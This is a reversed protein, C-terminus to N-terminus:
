ADPPPTTPDGPPGAVEGMNLSGSVDGHIVVARGGKANIQALIGQTLGPRSREAENLVLTATDILEQDHAAGVEDLVSRIAAEFLEPDGIYAELTRELKANKTGFRFIILSKLSAYSEKLTKDSEKDTKESGVDSIPTALALASLLVSMSDM